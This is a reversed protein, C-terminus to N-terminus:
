HGPWDLSPKALNTVLNALDLVQNTLALALLKVVNIENQYDKWYGVAKWKVNRAKITSILSVSHIMVEIFNNSIHNFYSAKHDYNVNKGQCHSFFRFVPQWYFVPRCFNVLILWSQSFLFCWIHRIYKVFLTLQFIYTTRLWLNNTLIKEWSM